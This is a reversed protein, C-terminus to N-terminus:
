PSTDPFFAANRVVLALLTFDLALGVTTGIVRGGKRRRDLRASQVDDLAVFLRPQGDPEITLGTADASILTGKYEGGDYTVRIQEGTRVAHLVDPPLHRHNHIRDARWGVGFGIATCGSTSVALALLVVTATQRM